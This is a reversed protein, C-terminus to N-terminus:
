VQCRIPYLLAGKAMGNPNIEKYGRIDDPKAPKQDNAAGTSRGRYLVPITTGYIGASFFATQEVLM